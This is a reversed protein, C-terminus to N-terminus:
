NLKTPVVTTNECQRYQWPPTKLLAIFIYRDKYEDSMREQRAQKNLVWYLVVEGTHPGDLESVM